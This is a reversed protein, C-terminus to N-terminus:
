KKEANTIFALPLPCPLVLVGCNIMEDIFAAPPLLMLPLGALLM